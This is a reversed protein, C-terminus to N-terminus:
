NALTLTLTNQIVDPNATGPSNTLEITYNGLENADFALRALVRLQSCRMTGFVSRSEIQLADGTDVHVVSVTPPPKRSFSQGYVVFEIFKTSGSPLVHIPTLTRPRVRFLKPKPGPYAPDGVGPDPLCDPDDPGFEGEEMNFALVQENLPPFVHNGIATPDMKYLMHREADNLNYAKMIAEPDRNFAARLERDGLLDRVIETLNFQPPM